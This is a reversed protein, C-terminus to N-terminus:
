KTTLHKIQIQPVQRKWTRCRYKYTKSEVILFQTKEPLCLPIMHFWMKYKYSTGNELNAAIYTTSTLTLLCVPTKKWLFLPVPLGFQSSLLWLSQNGLVLKRTLVHNKKSRVTTVTSQTRVPNAQSWSAQFIVIGMEHSIQKNIPNRCDFCYIYMYYYCLVGFSYYLTPPAPKPPHILHFLVKQQFQTTELVAVSNQSRMGKSSSYTQNFQSSLVGGLLLLFAFQSWIPM